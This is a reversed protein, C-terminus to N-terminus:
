PTVGVRERLHRLRNAVNWLVNTNNSISIGVATQPAKRVEDDLESEEKFDTTLVPTLQEELYELEKQITDIASHQINIELNIEGQPEKAVLVVDSSKDQSFTHQQTTKKPM